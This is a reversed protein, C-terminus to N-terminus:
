KYKDKINENFIVFKNWLKLILNTILEIGYKM